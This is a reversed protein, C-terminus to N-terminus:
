PIFFFAVGLIVYVGLLMVGELWNSEGDVAILFAAGIGADLVCGRM